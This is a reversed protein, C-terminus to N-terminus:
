CTNRANGQPTAAPGGSGARERGRDSPWAGLQVGQGRRSRVGETSCHPHAFRLHSGQHPQGPRVYCGVRGGAAPDQAGVRCRLRPPGCVRQSRRRIPPGLTQVHRHPRAVGCVAITDGVAGRGGQLGLLFEKRVDPELFRTYVVQELREDASGVPTAYAARAEAVRGGDAHDLYSAKAKIIKDQFDRMLLDLDEIAGSVDSSDFQLAKRLERLVGVFDVVLGIPKSNGEGDVYPRNVRAIAQLLVHDRM